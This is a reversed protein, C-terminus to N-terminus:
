WFSSQQVYLVVIQLTRLASRIKVTSDHIRLPVSAGKIM